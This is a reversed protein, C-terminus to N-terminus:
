HIREKFSKYIDQNYHNPVSLHFMLILLAAVFSGNKLFFYRNKDSVHSM